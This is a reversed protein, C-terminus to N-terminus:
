HSTPRRIRLRQRSGAAAQQQLTRTRTAVLPQAVLDMREALCLCVPTASGAALELM